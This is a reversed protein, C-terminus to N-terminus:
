IEKYKERRALIMEMIMLVWCFIMAETIVFHAYRRLPTMM